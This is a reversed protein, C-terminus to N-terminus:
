CKSSMKLCHKFYKAFIETFIDKFDSFISSVRRVILFMKSFTPLFWSVNFMIQSINLLLWAAVSSLNQLFQLVIELYLHVNFMKQFYYRSYMLTSRKWPIKNEQLKLVYNKWIKHKKRLKTANKTCNQWKRRSSRKWQLYYNLEAFIFIM